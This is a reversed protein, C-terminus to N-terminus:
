ANVIREERKAQCFSVDSTSHGYTHPVIHLQTLFKGKLHLYSYEDRERERERSEVPTLPGMYRSTKPQNFFSVSQPTEDEETQMQRLRSATILGKIGSNLVSHV